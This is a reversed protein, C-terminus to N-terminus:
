KRKEFHNKVSELREPTGIDKIYWSEPKNFAYVESKLNGFVVDKEINSIGEPIMGIADGSLIMSGVNATKLVDQGRGVFEVVRNGELKLVDSDLPHDTQRVLVTAIGNNKQHFRLMENFDVGDMMADGNLVLIDKSGKLFERANSIAGGSGMPEPEDPYHIKVGFDHGDGFYNKIKEVLYSGCLVIEKIGQDRLLCIQHELVPKGNIEIMPKPTELTLHLLREGKGGALIVAKISSLNDILKAAEIIDECVYDPDAEYKGDQGALGTKVLISTCGASEAAKMDRTSDGVFFSNAIDIDLDKAAQHIMGAAPKRCDCHVRYKKAHEPVDNHQEPHHPCFYVADIRAGQKALEAIIEDHMARVDEESCLGRAVIPQNTILIVLFKENLKRIADVLGSILKIENFKSFYGDSETITGDRDLFVARRM